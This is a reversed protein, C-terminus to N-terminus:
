NCAFSGNTNDYACTLGSTHTYSGAGDSTWDAEIGAELVNGFCVNAPGCAAASSSDLAAPFYPTTGTAINGAYTMTIGSQVASAVAEGAATEAEATLDVFNPLAAVALIGLIAIVMILEILTFGSQNNIHKM